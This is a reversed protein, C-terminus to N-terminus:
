KGDVMKLLNERNAEKDDKQKTKVQGEKEM